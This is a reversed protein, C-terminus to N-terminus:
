FKVESLEKLYKEDKYETKLKELLEKAMDTQKTAKLYYVQNLKIHKGLMSHNQFLDFDKKNDEVIKIGEKLEALKFHYYALNSYYVLRNIGKLGKVQIKNLAEKAKRYSKKVAHGASINIYILSQNYPSKTKELLKTNEEIFLDPDNKETLITQLANLKKQFNKQSLWTVFLTIAIALLIVHIIYNM